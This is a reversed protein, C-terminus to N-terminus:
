ATAGANESGAGNKVRAGFSTAHVRGREGGWIPAGHRRDRSRLHPRDVASGDFRDAEIEAPHHFVGAPSEGLGDEVDPRAVPAVAVDRHESSVPPVAATAERTGAVERIPVKGYPDNEVSVGSRDVADGRLM